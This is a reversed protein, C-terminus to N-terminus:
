GAQAVKQARKRESASLLTKRVRLSQPTVEVLEDPGIFSIAGELTPPHPPTLIINEDRAAARVNTLKKEKCANVELDNGKSHEGVVMGEYVWEGPGVFLVGRPELNYLAYPIAQGQRDSILSGTVRAGFDGRYPGYGELSANMIGTGRTDTLLEDRFGILSRSPISFEVRARDGHGEQNLLLGKRSSLKQTVTGVYQAACDVYLHEIPELTEGDEHRYIVEPRGVSMEFGERRMTEVLIALQFEGRGKVVFGNTDPSEEVELAVTRLAEKQLREKIKSPQVYRGERGAFPSTNKGIWVSVTPQDVTVRPLPRPNEATAITDGIAVEDIGSLVAIDGAEVRKVSVLSMGRYVQLSSVTLPRQQGDEDIRILSERDSIARNRVQGIALRGLYESYGLDSVLMQQPLEPDKEPPPLQELILRFLPALDQGEESLTETVTGDRGVAFLVPFDLQDEDADLDIFLDSVEDLVQIPRADDRDIKNVVVLVRMGAELTKKLVFRTQPLPGEAADVLLLAGEAMSLAREVEGGFDAHGPTDIINIKVGEWAVACNKAAITIGRERELDLQDMLREGDGRRDDFVGSQRFMGDVLTTKGHDVHSIIAINRIQPNTDETSMHREDANEM